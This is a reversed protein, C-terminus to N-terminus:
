LYRESDLLAKWGQPIEVALGGITITVGERNEYLHGLYLLMACKITDPVSAATQGCVYRVKIGNRDGRHSPWSQDYAPFLRARYRDSTETTYVASDVTQEVGDADVYKISTISALPPRPLVIDNSTAWAAHGDDRISYNETWKTLRLEYTATCFQRRTYTEAIRRSAALQALILTNDEDTDVRLHRKAEDLTVPEETPATIEVLEAM